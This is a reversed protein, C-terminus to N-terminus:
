LLRLGDDEIAIKKEKYLAGVAKKFTKKSMELVQYIIEPESKDTLRLFGNEEKLMKLIQLSANFTEDYGQEQLSVDIRNESRIKKIYGKVKDGKNIKKFIENHYLLGWHRNNIIVKVGLDTEDCILLDVQNGEKVLLEDNNVFRNIKTTGTPRGSVEDLFVYILYYKGQYMKEKQESFPVLLDKEVGWEMFAGSPNEMLVKMYGCEGVTAIPKSTTAVLKGESDQFVFLELEDGPNVVSPASRRRLFVTQDDVDFFVGAETVKSVTLLNYKGIEVPM